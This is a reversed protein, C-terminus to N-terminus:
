GTGSVSASSQSSNSPSASRSSTVGSCSIAVVVSNVDVASSSQSSHSSSSSLEIGRGIVIDFFSRLRISFSALRCSFILALFGGDNLVLGFPDRTSKAIIREVVPRWNTLTSAAGRPELPVVCTSSSNPLIM